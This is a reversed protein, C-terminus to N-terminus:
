TPPSRTDPDPDPTAAPNGGPLPDKPPTLPELGGGEAKPTLTRAPLLELGPIGPLGQPLRRHHDPGAPAPVPGCQRDEACPSGNRWADIIALDIRGPKWRLHAAQRALQGCPSAAAGSDGAPDSHGHRWDDESDRQEPRPQGPWQRWNTDNFGFTAANAKCQGNPNCTPRIAYSQAIGTAQPM